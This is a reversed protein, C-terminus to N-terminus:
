KRRYKEDCGNQVERHFLLAAPIALPLAHLIVKGKDRIILRPLSPLRATFNPTHGM